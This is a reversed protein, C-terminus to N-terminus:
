SCLAYGKIKGDPSCIQPRGTHSTIVRLVNGNSGAVEVVVTIETPATMGTNALYVLRSRRTTKTVTVGTSTDISVTRLEELPAPCSRGAGRTCDCWSTTDGYDGVTYCTSRPSDVYFRVEVNKVRQLSESRAYNLSNVLESAGSIIRQNILWDHMSPVALTVLIAAIAMAVFLEIATLGRRIPNHPRRTM